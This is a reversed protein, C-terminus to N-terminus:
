HQIEGFNGGFHSHYEASKGFLYFFFKTSLFRGFVVMYHGFVLMFLRIIQDFHVFVRLLACLVFPLAKRGGARTDMMQIENAQQETM